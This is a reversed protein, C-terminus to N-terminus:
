AAQKQEVSLEGDGQPRASRYVSGEIKAEVERCRHEVQPELAGVRPEEFGFFVVRQELVTCLAAPGFIPQAPQRKSEAHAAVCHPM